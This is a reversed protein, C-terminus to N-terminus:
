LAFIMYSASRSKAFKVIGPLSCMEAADLKSGPFQMESAPLRSKEVKM